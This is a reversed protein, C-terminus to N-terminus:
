QTLIKTKIVTGDLKEYRFNLNGDMFILKYRKNSHVCNFQIAKFEETGTENFILPADEASTLNLSQLVAHSNNNIYNSNM